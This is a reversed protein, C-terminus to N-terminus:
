ALMTPRLTDSPELRYAINFSPSLRLRGNLHYTLSLKPRILVASRQVNRAPWNERTMQIKALLKPTVIKKGKSSPMNAGVKVLM